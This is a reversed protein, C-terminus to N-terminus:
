LIPLVVQAHYIHAGDKGVLHGAGAELQNVDVQFLRRLAIM